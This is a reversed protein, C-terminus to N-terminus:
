RGGPNSLREVYKAVMDVEVNAKAGVQIRGLTTTQLSHPILAVQFSTMGVDVVTLSVGDITVSGKPVLYRLIDHDAAWWVRVSDGDDEVRLAEIVGDVHGQVLHGGLRESMRVPLELNVQARAALDSFTTRALTEGMVEAAFRRRRASTATLCVGNVAISDGEKLQRAISPADIELDLLGNHARARRVTGQDTVIGTFM